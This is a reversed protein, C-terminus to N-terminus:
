SRSRTAQSSWRRRSHSPRGRGRALLGDRLDRALPAAPRGPPRVRIALAVGAAAALLGLAVFPMVPRVPSPLVLLVAVTLVVQVVQGASREWVM